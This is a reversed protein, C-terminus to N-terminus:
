FGFMEASQQIVRAASDDDTSREVVDQLGPASRSVASTGRDLLFATLAQRITAAARHHRLQPTLLKYLEADVPDDLNLIFEIRKMM